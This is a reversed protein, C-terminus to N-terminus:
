VRIAILCLQNYGIRILLSALNNCFDHLSQPSDLKRVLQQGALWDGAVIPLLAPAFDAGSVDDEGM